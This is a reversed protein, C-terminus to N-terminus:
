EPAFDRLLEAVVDELQRVKGREIATNLVDEPLEARLENLLPEALRRFESSAAEHNLAYGILEASRARDGLYACLRGFQGVMYVQYAVNGLQAHGQLAAYFQIQAALHNGAALELEGLSDRKALVGREDEGGDLAMSLSQELHRRAKQLDGAHIHLLGLLNHIIAASRQDGREVMINMVDEYITQAEAIRNLSFLLIGAYVVAVPGTVLWNRGYLTIALSRAQEVQVLAEDYRGIRALVSAYGTLAYTIEFQNGSQRALALQAKFHRSADEYQGRRVAEKARGAHCQVIGWTQGLVEFRTMAEEILIPVDHPSERVAVTSLAWYGLATESHDEFRQITSLSRRYQVARDLLAEGFNGSHVQLALLLGFVVDTKGTWRTSAQKWLEYADLTLTQYYFYAQLPFLVAQVRQRDGNQCAWLLASKINEMETEISDLVRLADSSHILPAQESLFGLFYDAHAHRAVQEGSDAEHMKEAAYQWVMPHLDYRGEGDVRLLSKDVLASLVALSADAVARAADRRFPAPFVSLNMLADQEVPSLLNWSYDFVARLSRHREPGTRKKSTLVDLSASIEDALEQCSLMRLWSAALEIGLPMGDVLRCIEIACDREHHISFRPQVRRAREAFLRVASYDDADALDSDNPVTMGQVTYVWEWELNLVERSTAIIKLHPATALMADVMDVGDLLHEFNDLVLLMEKARLYDLIEDHATRNSDDRASFQFNLARGIATPIDDAAHIAALEVAFVGHQFDNLCHGAVELALRTKGIGGPGVLSLLRCDSQALDSLLTDIEEERGVFSTAAEQLNHRQAPTDSAQAPRALKTTLVDPTKGHKIDELFAAIHRMSDIRRAPDKELMTYILTALSEPIDPRLRELDPSPPETLISKLIATMTDGRFPRLGALMEFLMVGFSWIDTRADLPEGNFAEPSLYSLTGVVAHSATLAPLEAKQALGFDTLRPTGDAALLVNDPKIDRHIIQLHHARALADALELAINVTQKVPLPGGTQITEALSGGQVFDMVICPQSPDDVVALVGVINPHNLQRLIEGERQFRTVADPDHTLADAKLLKIVVRQDTQTDLGRYVEGMGGAGIRSQMLFRNAILQDM